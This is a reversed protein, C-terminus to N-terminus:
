QDGENFSKIGAHIATKDVAYVMVGLTDGRSAGAHCSLCSSKSARVPRMVVQWNGFDRDVGVGQKLMPWAPVVVKDLNNDGWDMLRQSGADTSTATALTQVTLKIPPEYETEKTVMDKGPKHACHLFAIVYPRHAANIRRLRRKEGSTVATLGYINDHGHFVVRDVGFQGANKQFRPQVISDLMDAVEQPSIASSAVGEDAAQVGSFGPLTLALLSPAVGAAVAFSILQSRRSITM